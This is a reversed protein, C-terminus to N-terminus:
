AHTHTHTLTYRHTLTLRLHQKGPSPRPRPCRAPQPGPPMARPATTSPAARLDVAAALRARAAAVSAPRLHPVGPRCPICGRYGPWQASGLPSVLQPLACLQLGQTCGGGGKGQEEAHELPGGWRSASLDAARIRKLGLRREGNLCRMRVRTINRWQVRVEIRGSDKWWM